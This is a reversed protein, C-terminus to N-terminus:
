LNTRDKGKKEELKEYYKTRQGHCTIGSCAPDVSRESWGGSVLM